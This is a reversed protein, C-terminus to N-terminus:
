LELLALLGFATEALKADADPADWYGGGSPASRQTNVLCQALDRRWDVPANGRLLQGEGACNILHAVRWLNANGANAPPWTAALSALCGPAPAAALPAASLGATMLAERWLRRVEAPAEAESPRARDAYRRLLVHRSPNDPLVQALALLRWAHTELDVVRNTARADLWLAARAIAESHDPRGAAKLSLLTISTLRVRNSVGWSGDDNQQAYLWVAAQRASHDAENYISPDLSAGPQRISTVGIEAPACLAASIILATLLNQMSLSCPM